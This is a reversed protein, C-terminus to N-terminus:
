FLSCIFSTFIFIVACVLMMLWENKTPLEEKKMKSEGKM